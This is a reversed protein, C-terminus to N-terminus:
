RFLLFWFFWSSSTRKKSNEHIVESIGNSLEKTQKALLIDSKTMKIGFIMRIIKGIGRLSYRWSGTLISFLILLILLSTIPHLMMTDLM